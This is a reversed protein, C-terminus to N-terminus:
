KSPSAIQRTLHTNPMKEADDLRRWIARLSDRSANVRIGRSRLREIVHLMLTMLPGCPEESAGLSIGPASQWLREYLCSLDRVLKRLAKVEPRGAKPGKMRRRKGEVELMKIADLRLLEVARLANMAAAEGRAEGRLAAAAFLGGAGFMPLLDGGDAVGAIRLVKQCADRLAKAGKERQPTSAQDEHWLDFAASKSVENLEHALADALGAADAPPGVLILVERATQADYNPEGFISLMADRM